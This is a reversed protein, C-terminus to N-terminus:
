EALSMGIDVTGLFDMNGVVDFTLAAPQKDIPLCANGIRAHELRLTLFYLGPKLKAIFYVQIEGSNKQTDTKSPELFFFKGSIDLMKQDNLYISISVNRLSSLYEYGVCFSIEENCEFIQKQNGSPVFHSYTILGEETGFAPLSHNAISKKIVVPLGSLTRRQEDRTDLFYLEAIYSPIGISKLIGKQLYIANKCFSQVMGIDHSVFLLTTGSETLIRMRELCKFQFSADGVALAEDIVLIDPDVCVSIAFGLRLVMGSSYTKVPLTIFDGIDAFAEIDGLRQDIDDKSLGLVAGNMYINERGTFEPNFGTGLELLAAIRGTTQIKGSSPNLTGCILQLLTSKGSGNRGVIGVTEGKLIEFSVNNLAQFERFYQKPKKGVLRQLRPLVIQKLRDFPQDYIHFCKSLNEVKIAVDNSAMRAGSFKGSSITKSPHNSFLFKYYM